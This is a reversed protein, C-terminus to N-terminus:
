SVVERVCRERILTGLLLWITAPEPTPSVAPDVFTRFALDDGEAVGKQWVCTPGTGPGCKDSVFIDGEPFLDGPVANWFYNGVSDARLVIAIQDGASVAAGRGLSVSTFSPVLPPNSLFPLRGIGIAGTALASSFDGIQNANVMPLLWFRIDAAPPLERQRSLPLDFRTLRGTHRVPTSMAIWDSSIPGIQSFSLSGAAHPDLAMDLIPDAAASAGIGLLLVLALSVHKM